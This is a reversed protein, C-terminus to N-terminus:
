KEEFLKNNRSSLEIRIAKEVKNAEDVKFLGFMTACALVTRIDSITHKELSIGHAIQHHKWCLYVVTSHRGRLLHHRTTVKRGCIFCGDTKRNLARTRVFPQKPIPFENRFATINELWFPPTEYRSEDGDAM